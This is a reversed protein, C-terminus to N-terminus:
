TIRYNQFKVTLFNRGGVTSGYVKKVIVTSNLNIIETTDDMFTIRVDVETDAEMLTELAGFNAFSPINWESSEKNGGYLMQGKANEVEQPEPVFSPSDALPTGLSTQSGGFAGVSAEFEVLKIGTFKSM